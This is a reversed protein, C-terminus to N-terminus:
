AALRRDGWRRRTMVPREPPIFEVREGAMVVQWGGEHVLRHHHFCLPLMRHLNTHGGEAWFDIHHASTWNLPRDCGPGACTRHRAELARWQAPQATRKARGVDIVMSDAKLVRHLAGDCALRQVTKSSIPTGNQLQSAAAGLEGKLAEITTTVAIHPRVGHRKPLSGRSMARHVIEVMSDARRQKPLRADDPGLRKSLSEIATKLATGGERDLVGSLHFMGGSESISLFRKEWDEEVQNDFSDPDVMYRVHQELWRLDRVSSHKAQGIWWEEDINQRLDQRLRDRFHCITSAKQYSLAGSALAQNVAPLAALQEGVCLRDAAASLALGCTEAVWGTATRGTLMHEGRREAAALVRCLKGQLRHIGAALRKPDVFNDDAQADFEAIARELERLEDQM